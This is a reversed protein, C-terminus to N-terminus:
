RISRWLWRNVKTQFWRPIEARRGAAPSTVFQRTTMASQRPAEVLRVGDIEDDTM